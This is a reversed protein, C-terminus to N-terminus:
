AYRYQPEWDNVGDALLAVLHWAGCFADFPGFSAKAVREIKGDTGRRFTSVGPMWSKESRFGMDQIFPSDKGSVMPFRWKRGAAFEKQVDTSDPSCVVFAARNGLHEAVGNFGDAWLTCYRCGRGMNHIVILDSKGGFLGSLKVPGNWGALDYDKVPERPMRRKLEALRTYQEVLEGELKEIERTLVASEANM